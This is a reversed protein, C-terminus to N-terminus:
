SLPDELYPSEAKIQKLSLKLVEVSMEKMIKLFWRNYTLEKGLVAPPEL